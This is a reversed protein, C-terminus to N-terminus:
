LGAGREGKIRRLAWWGSPLALAALFLKILDGPVFPYLGAALVHSTPLFRALWPLGFLYIVVNGVLMALAAKFLHRDWGREALFGVVFAAAVFGFLYGGSPGFLKLVGGSGGAFVPLGAAGEALYTLLSLAGRRSGLLAGVLLVGFTQGTIPVPTWPLPISVQASLAVLVSGGLILALDALLGM